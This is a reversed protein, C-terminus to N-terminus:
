HFQTLVIFVQFLICVLARLQLFTPYSRQGHCRAWEDRDRGGGEKRRVAVGVWHRGNVRKLRIRDAACDEAGGVTGEIHMKPNVFGGLGSTIEKLMREVAVVGIHGEVADDGTNKSLSPIGRSCTVAAFSCRMWWRAHGMLRM